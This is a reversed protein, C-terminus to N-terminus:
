LSCLGPPTSDSGSGSSGGENSSKQKKWLATILGLGGTTAAMECSGGEGLREDGDTSAQEHHANRADGRTTRPVRTVDRAAQAMGVRDVGARMQDVEEQEREGEGQGEPHEVRAERHTYYPM